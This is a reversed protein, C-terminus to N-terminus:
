MWGAIGAAEREFRIARYAGHHGLRRLRGVVYDGLYRGLFGIPGLTQWQRAHVLEHVILRALEESSRGFQDPRVYIGWPLTMAGVWRPVLGFLHPLTRVPVDEPQVPLLRVRLLESDLGDLLDAAQM